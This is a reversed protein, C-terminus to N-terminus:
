ENVVSLLFLFSGLFGFFKGLRCGLAGLSEKTLGGTELAGYREVERGGDGRDDGESKLLGVPNTVVVVGDM